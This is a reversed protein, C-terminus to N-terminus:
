WNNVAEKLKATVHKKLKARGRHIRSKIAPVSLNNIAATETAEFGFVDVATVAASLTPHMRHLGGEVVKLVQRAYVVRDQRSHKEVADNLGGFTEFERIKRYRHNAFIVNMVVRYMWCSLRADGRWQGLKRWIMLWAEQELDKDIFLAAGYRVSLGRVVHAYRRYLARFADDSGQLVRAILVRDTEEFPLVKRTM